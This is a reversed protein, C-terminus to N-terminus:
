PRVNKVDTRMIYQTTEMLISILLLAITSDKSCSPVACRSVLVVFIFSYFDSRKNLAWFRVSYLEIGGTSVVDIFVAYSHLPFNLTSM